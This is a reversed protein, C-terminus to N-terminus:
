RAPDDGDVEPRDLEPYLATLRQRDAGRLTATLDGLDDRDRWIGFVGDIAADVEKPDHDSGLYREVAERILHSRTTGRARAQRDLETTQRGDLYIQTREMAIYVYVTM